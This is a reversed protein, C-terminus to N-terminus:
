GRGCAAVAAAGARELNVQFGVGIRRLTTVAAVVEATSLLADAQHFVWDVDVRYRRAPGPTIADFWLGLELTPAAGRPRGRRAAVRRDDVFYTIAGGEVQALLVRWGARSGRISSPRGNPAAVELVPPRDGSRYAFAAPGAALYATTRDVATGAVPVDRLRLRAATTGARYGERRCLLAQTTGRATGDTVATLRLLGRGAPAVGAWRAGPIGPPGAATRVAWGDGAGVFDDFFVRPTAAVTPDPADEEDLARWIWAALAIGVIAGALAIAKPAPRPM